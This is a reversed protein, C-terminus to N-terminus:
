SSGKDKSPPELHKINSEGDVKKEKNELHNQEKENVDSSTEKDKPIRVIDVWYPKGIKSREVLEENELPIIQENDENDKNGLGGLQKAMSKFDLLTLDNLWSGKTLFVFLFNELNAQVNTQGEQQQDYTVPAAHCGLFIATLTFVIPIM